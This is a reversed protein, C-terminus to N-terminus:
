RMMTKDKNGKILGTKMTMATLGSKQKITM